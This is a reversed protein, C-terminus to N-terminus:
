ESKYWRYGIIGLITLPALALYIIGRNLAKAPGEGMQQATKTCISCQAYSPAYVFSLGTVLVVILSLKKM